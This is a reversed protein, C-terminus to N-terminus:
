RLHLNQTRAAFPSHPVRVPHAIAWALKALEEDQACTDVMSKATSVDMPSCKKKRPM